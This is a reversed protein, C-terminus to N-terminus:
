MYSACVQVAVFLETLHTAPLMGAIAVSDCQAPAVSRLVAGLWAKLEELSKMEGFLDYSELDGNHTVLIEHVCSVPQLM